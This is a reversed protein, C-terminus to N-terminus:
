AAVAVYLVILLPPISSLSMQESSSVIVINVSIISHYVSVHIQYM